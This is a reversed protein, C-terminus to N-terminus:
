KRMYAVGHFTPVSTWGQFQRRVQLSSTLWGWPLHAQSSWGQFQRDGKACTLCGSPLHAQSSRGQFRPRWQRTYATRHFTPKHLGDKFNDGFKGLQRFSDEHLTPKHLSDKFSDAERSARLGDEHFTSKHSRGQITASSALQKYAMRMSPSSAFVIKFNDAEMQAHICACPFHAQSSWGQFQRQVKSVAQLGVVHFTPMRLSDKFNDAEMQAHLGNMHFTPM